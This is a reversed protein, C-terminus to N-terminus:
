AAFVLCREARACADVWQGLGGVRFGPLLGAGGPDKPNWGRREAASVCLVLDLDYCAALKSWATGRHPTSGGQADPTLGNLVGDYYFFVL